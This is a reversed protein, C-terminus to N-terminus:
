RVIVTSSDMVTAVVTRNSQLNRVEVADGFEADGLAEAKIALKITRGQYVLTVTEGKAVMPVAELADVVIPQGTGIARSLRFPGSTGDWPDKVYALNKRKFTIKDPTVEDFRNLPRVACPVAKWVDVFVSAAARNSIRGDAGKAHLTLAVSGAIIEGSDVVEFTGLEDPLFIYQPTRFDHFEIEGGTVALRPTLFDVIRTEIVSREFVLGGRQVVLRGPFVCAGALDPVYYALLKELQKRPVAQQRGHNGPAKWLPTTAIREMQQPPVTGVPTVIEGLLVRDGQVVAAQRVQLRWGDQGPTTADADAVAPLLALGLVLAALALLALAQARRTMRSLKSM